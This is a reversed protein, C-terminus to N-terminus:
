GVDFYYVFNSKLSLCLLLSVVVCLETYEQCFVHSDPYSSLGRNVEIRNLKM